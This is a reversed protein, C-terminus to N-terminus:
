EGKRKLIEEKMREFVSEYRTSRMNPFAKLLRRRFFRNKGSAEHICAELREWIERQEPSLKALLEKRREAKRESRENRREELFERLEMKGLELDLKRQDMKQQLEQHNQRLYEATELKTQEVLQQIQKLTGNLELITRVTVTCDATLIVAFAATFAICLWDPLSAIMGQVVPDIVRAAIVSLVGFMLSNRLCVRGHINFRYTSYDWWKTAFLKELLFGTIYEIVSTVLVGSLYLVLLNERVPRLFFLVAMAGFGYVPCLPGNLFGRNVFKRQGISCYVTECVWGLFSYTLFALFLQLVIVEQRFYM